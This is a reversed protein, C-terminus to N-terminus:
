SRTYERGLQGPQFDYPNAMLDLLAPFSYIAPSRGAAERRVKVIGAQALHQILTNATAGQIGVDRFDSVRFIPRQCIVDVAQSAYRSSTLEGVRAQTAAYLQYLQEAHGTDAQAQEVVARLFFEVWETWEDSESIGRLRMYYESQCWKIYASVYGWPAATRKTQTLFLPILVRGLRGNGDRFPHLIEFQAHVVACQVLPDTDQYQLYAEWDKLHGDLQLPSPPVFSAEAMTSGPRGIWNQIDRFEGPSKNAGRPGAMLLKHMERVLPLRISRDTIGGSGCQLAQRCNTIERIDEQKEPKFSMGAALELCEEYTAHINEIRSSMIAEHDALPALLLNLDVLQGIAQLMGDYRGLAANAEGILTALQTYDIESPPLTDPQFPQPNM